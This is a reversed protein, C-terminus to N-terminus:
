DKIPLLERVDSAEAIALIQAPVHQFMITKKNKEAERAWHILLALGASDGRTVGMFDFVLAVKMAFITEAQQLLSPVSSFCIEGSVRALNAKTDWEITSPNNM